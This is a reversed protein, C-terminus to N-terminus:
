AGVAAAYGLLGLVCASGCLVLTAVAFPWARARRIL